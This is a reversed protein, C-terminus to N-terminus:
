LYPILDALRDVVIDPKIHSKELDDRKTEGTLVLATTVGHDAGIAIDTYLRDGVFVMDDKTCDLYELLYELTEIFPKGLYKPKVGTSATIFACIAGCDPIFGTETPCNLDLHTAIFPVGRRIFTCARSLKDYTLTTDFGAVVVDPKEEVLQIGNKCFEECLMPTGLLFVSCNKYNKKLYEITVMGSTIIRSESVYCGMGALKKQYVSSNKSSNNTFFTFHKGSEEVGKVFDLSGDLLKDGLYFTGDMDLVFHKKEKLQDIKMQKMGRVMNDETELIIFAVTGINYEVV